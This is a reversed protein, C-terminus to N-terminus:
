PSRPGLKPTLDPAGALAAQKAEIELVTMRRRAENTRALEALTRETIVRIAEADHLDDRDLVEIPVQEISVISMDDLVWGNLDRGIVEITQDKIEYRSGVVRDYTAQALVTAISEDCKGALLSRLAEIDFTKAAGVTQVVKLVDDPTRNIRIHFEAKV